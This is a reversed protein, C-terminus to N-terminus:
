LRIGYILQGSFISRFIRYCSQPIMSDSFLAFSNLYLPEDPEKTVVSSLGCEDLTESSGTFIVDCYELTRQKEGHEIKVRDEPNLNLASNSYVNRYTIFKATGDIFDDKSKGTIGGYFKGLEGLSYFPIGKPCFKSILEDIRSM